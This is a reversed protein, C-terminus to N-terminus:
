YDIFNDTGEMSNGSQFQRLKSDFEAEERNIRYIHSELIDASQNVQGRDSGFSPVSDIETSYGTGMPIFNEYASATEAGAVCFAAAVIGSLVFMRM